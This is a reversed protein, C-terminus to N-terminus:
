LWDFIIVVSVGGVLVWLTNFAQNPVVRDYVNMTFLPVVLALLNILLSAVILDRYWPTMEKVVSFLWNESHRAQLSDVREDFSSQVAVQWGQLAFRNELDKVSLELKDWTGSNPSQAQYVADKKGLLIIPTQTKKDVAVVPFTLMKIDKTNVLTLELGANESARVFLESDLYGDNLPLGSLIKMPHHRLEFHGALWVLVCLWPDCSDKSHYQMSPNEAQQIM